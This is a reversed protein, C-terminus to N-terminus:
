LGYKAYENNDLNHKSYVVEIDPIPYYEHCPRMNNLLEQYNNNSYTSEYWIGWRVLDYKRQFECFLERAREDRIEQRLRSISKFEYNKLKARSKVENLCAVAKESDGKECYCEAMMLIADAFRFVKYNNSDQYMKMGPCWFKPGVFPKSDVGEFTQGNYEWALNYEKRIDSSFKTQLGGSFYYTPRISLWTTAETGLEPIVLGGYLVTGDDLTTKPPTCIAAVQGIYTLGGEIYEHQIEFISEATNKNRFMVNEGYDYSSLNGYINRIHELADLAVDWEQNWMALKGIMMWAFSAGIRFGDIDITRVQAAAKAAPLLDAILSDRTQRADMRPLCAVRNQIENNLVAETYFPTNGFFSTIHWYYLARIAKAECILANYESENISESSYAKNIGYVAFNSRQVGLYCQTWMTSGFRPQSPSVDLRADLIGNTPITAIDSVGELAVLLTRDYISKLPIYCSNVVSQCESYKRFYKDPTSLASTDEELSCSALIVTLGSIYLLKRIDM